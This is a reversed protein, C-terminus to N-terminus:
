GDTMREWCVLTLGESPQWIQPPNFGTQDVSSLEDMSGSARWVILNGGTALLSRGWNLLESLHGVGRSVITRYQSNNQVDSAFTEARLCEVTVNSLSLTELTKRLFLTKGRNSDLLTVHLHPLAIKLPLGPFGAGTGIDLLPSEIRCSQWELPLLSEQILRYTLKDVDRRSVLNLKNNARLVLERYRRLLNDVNQDTTFIM